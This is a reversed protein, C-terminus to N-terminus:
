NQPMGSLRIVDDPLSLAYFKSNPLLTFTKGNIVRTLVVNAGERNYRKLDEWRLGRLLLEKRREMRIIDIAMLRTTAAIPLYTVTNKWRTKLLLNLDEMAGNIDNLYAKCEARTLYLEDTALGSFYINAVAAYSGKFQQYPAVAKFYATKRLDNPAYSAYLMTDVRARTPSNVGFGSSMEAYWITEKNFKKIPVNSTLALLDSDGNFNMLKNNLVLAEDAYKLALDYKHMYLYCRSLLALAAGKSPRMVHQPYNPLFSLSNTLDKVVQQYCAEVTSRVSPKGFEADLRLAIGLDTKSTNEDYGLGFQSNLMLFYYSRLFLASGQVNDWATANVQLREVKKLLDLSLNCNFIANYGQAYDNVHDYLTPQWTYVTRYQSPFAQYAAELMFFDDNSHENYSPTVRINIISADDLIGQIDSISQPVVLTDNSKQALFKKCGVFVLSSFGLLLVIKKINKM